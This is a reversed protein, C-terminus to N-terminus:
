TYVQELAKVFDLLYDSRNTANIYLRFNHHKSVAREFYDKVYKENERREPLLKTVIWEANNKEFRTVQKIFKSLWTKQNISKFGPRNELSFTQVQVKPKIKALKYKLELLNIKHDSCELRMLKQMNWEDWREPSILNFKWNLIQSSKIYEIAKDVETDLYRWGWEYLWLNPIQTLFSTDHAMRIYKTFQSAILNTINNTEFGWWIGFRKWLHLGLKQWLKDLLKFTQNNVSFTWAWTWWSRKSTFIYDWKTIVRSDQSSDFCLHFLKSWAQNNLNDIWTSIKDVDVRRWWIRFESSVLILIPKTQKKLRLSKLDQSPSLVWEDRFKRVAMLDIKEILEEEKFNVSSLDIMQKKKDVIVDTMPFYEYNTYFCTTEPFLDYFTWIFKWWWESTWKTIFNRLKNKKEWSEKAHLRKTIIEFAKELEPFIEFSDIQHKKNYNQVQKTYREILSFLQPLSAWYMDIMENEDKKINPKKSLFGRWQNSHNKWKGSIWKHNKWQILYLSQMYFDYDIELPLLLQEAKLTNNDWKRAILDLYDINWIHSVFNYFYEYWKNLASDLMEHIEKKRHKEDLTFLKNILENTSFRDIENYKKEILTTIDNILSGNNECISKVLWLDINEIFDWSESSLFVNLLKKRIDDRELLFAKTKVSFIWSEFSHHHTLLAKKMLWRIEFNRQSNIFDTNIEEM